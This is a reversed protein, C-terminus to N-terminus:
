LLFHSNLHGFYVFIAELTWCMLIDWLLDELVHNGLSHAGQGYRIEMPAESVSEFNLNLFANVSVEGNSSM